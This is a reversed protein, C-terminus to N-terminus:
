AWFVSQPEWSDNLERQKMKIVVAEKIYELYHLNHVHMIHVLM